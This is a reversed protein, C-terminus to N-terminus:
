DLAELARKLEKRYRLEKHSYSWRRRKDCTGYLVLFLVWVGVSLHLTSLYPIHM